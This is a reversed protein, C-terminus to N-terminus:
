RQLIWITKETSLISLSNFIYKFTYKLQFFSNSCFLKKTAKLVILDTLNTVVELSVNNSLYCQSVDLVTLRLLGLNFDHGIQKNIWFSYGQICKKKKVDSIDNTSVWDSRWDVTYKPGGKVMGRYPSQLWIKEFKQSVRRRVLNKEKREKSIEKLTVPNYGFIEFKQFVCFQNSYNIRPNWSLVDLVNLIDRLVM